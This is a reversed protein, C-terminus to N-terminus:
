AFLPVLGDILKLRTFDSKAQSVEKLMFDMIKIAKWPKQQLEVKLNDCVLGVFATNQGNRLMGLFKMVKSKNDM